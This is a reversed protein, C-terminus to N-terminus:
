TWKAGYPLSWVVNKFVPSIERIPNEWVDLRNLMRNRSIIEEDLKTIKNGILRVVKLNELPLLFKPYESLQNSSLDIYILNKMKSIEVPLTKIKKGCISIKKIHDFNCTFKKRPLFLTRSFNLYTLIEREMYVSTEIKPTCYM